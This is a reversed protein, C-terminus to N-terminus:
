TAAFRECVMLWLKPKECLDSGKGSFAPGFVGPMRHSRFHGRAGGSPLVGFHAKLLWIAASHIRRAPSNGSRADQLALDIRTM